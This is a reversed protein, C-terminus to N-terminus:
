VKLSPETSNNSEVEFEGRVYSKASQKMTGELANIEKQKDAQDEKYWDKRIRMVVAKQGGGVSIMASGVSAPVDVRADIGKRPQTLDVEYGALKAAEIRDDIDNVIRYHYNPDRNVVSLRNRRTMKQRAPRGEPVKQELTRDTSVKSM